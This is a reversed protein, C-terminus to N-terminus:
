PSRCASSSNTRLVPDGTRAPVETAVSSTPSGGGRGAGKGTYRDLTTRTAYQVSSRTATAARCPHETVRLRALGGRPKTHSQRALLVDPSDRLRKNPVMFRCWVTHHTGPFVVRKSASRPPRRNERKRERRRLEAEDNDDVTHASETWSIASATDGETSSSATSSTKNRPM